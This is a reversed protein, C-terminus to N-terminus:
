VYRMVRVTTGCIVKENRLKRANSHLLDVTKTKM